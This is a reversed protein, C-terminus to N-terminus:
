VGIYYYINYLSSKSYIHICAAIHAILIYSGRTSDDGKLAGRHLVRPSPVPSESLLIIDANHALSALVFIVIQRNVYLTFASIGNEARPCNVTDGSVPSHTEFIRPRSWVVARPKLVFIPKQLIGCCLRM